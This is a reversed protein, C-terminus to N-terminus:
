CGSRPSGSCRAEGAEAGAELPAIHGVLEPYETREHCGHRFVQHGTRAAVQEIFSSKGAGTPGALYLNKSGWGALWMLAPRLLEARFAYSDLRAPTATGPTKVPFTANGAHPIGFLDAIKKEM